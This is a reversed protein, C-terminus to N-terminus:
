KVILRHATRGENSEIVIFYLGKNMQNLNISTKYFGSARVSTRDIVIEGIANMVQIKLDNEKELNMEIFFEGSTPNPYININIDEVIDILGTIFVYIINSAESECEFENTVVVYYDGTIEPIYTQGTAGDIEGNSDYWQNGAMESSELVNGNQTITPTEPLDHVNVTISGYVTTNGDDVTVTYTTTVDPTATPSQINPDDM